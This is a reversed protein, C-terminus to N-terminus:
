LKVPNHDHADVVVITQQGEEFVGVRKGYAARLNAATLVEAATGCAIVEHRLLLLRDFQRQAAQLDHTALIITVGQAQLADLVLIIEGEAAVDVGSFPEDLLLIDAEQALARAIFVRRRQGGSLEGIQRHRFDAMNVRELMEDVRRWHKPPPWPYLRGIKRIRGMMVVDRVTVPFHWDISEVQPVYGVAGVRNRRDQGHITIHGATLPILGVIAKFLTSKGAGNPGLVGIQEGQYVTFNAAHLAKPLGPYGASVDELGLVTPRHGNMKHIGGKERGFCRLNGSLKM